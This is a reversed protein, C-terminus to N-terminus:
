SWSEFVSICWFGFISYTPQSIALWAQNSYRVRLYVAAEVSMDEGRTRESRRRCLTFFLALEMWCKMCVCQLDQAVQKKSHFWREMGWDRGSYKGRCGM